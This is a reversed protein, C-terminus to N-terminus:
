ARGALFGVTASPPGPLVKIQGLGADLLKREAEAPTLIAGGWIATRLRALRSAMPDESEVLMPFLLWAGPKLARAVKPLLNGLDSESVFLSPIWALDFFDIESIADGTEHRLQIRSGLGAKEVNERALALSPLWVETGVIKLSSWARLMAISMAAVGVGVELFAAGESQLSSALGDLLPAIRSKLLAPFGTSVDGAAQLLKPDSFNWRGATSSRTLLEVATFLEAKIGGLVPWLEESSAEAIAKDLDLAALVEDLAAQQAVTLSSQNLKTEMALAIATLANSSASLAAVAQRILEIHGM